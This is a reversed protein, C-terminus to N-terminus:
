ACACIRHSLSPKRRNHSPIPRHRYAPKLNEDAAFEWVDDTKTILAGAKRGASNYQAVKHVCVAVPLDDNQIEIQYYRVIEDFSEVELSNVSLHSEGPNRQFAGQAPRRDRLRQADDIYRTLESKERFTPETLQVM